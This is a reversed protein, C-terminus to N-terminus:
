NYQVERFSLIMPGDQQCGNNDSRRTCYGKCVRVSYSIEQDLEDSAASKFVNYVLGQSFRTAETPEVNLVDAYCEDKILSVELDGNTM